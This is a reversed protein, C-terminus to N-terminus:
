LAQQVLTDAGGAMAEWNSSRLAGGSLVVSRGAWGATRHSITM